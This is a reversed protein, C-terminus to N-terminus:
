AERERILYALDNYGSHFYVFPINRSEYVERHLPDDDVGFRIDVGDSMLEDLKAAKFDTYGNSEPRMYLEDYHIGSKSLWDITRQEFAELRNTLLLVKIESYLYLTNALAAGGPIIPDNDMRSDHFSRWDPEWGEQDCGEYLSAFRKSADAVVGDIDFIAAHVKRM